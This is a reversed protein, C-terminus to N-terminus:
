GTVKLLHHLQAGLLFAISACLGAIGDLTWRGRLLADSLLGLAGVFVVWATLLLQFLGVWRFSEAGGLAPGFWALALVPLGFIISQACRYKHERLREAPSRNLIANLSPPAGAPESM